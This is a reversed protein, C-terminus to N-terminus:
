QLLLINHCSFTMSLPQGAESSRLYRVKYHLQISACSSMLSTSSERIQLLTFINYRRSGLIGSSSEKIGTVPFPAADSTNPARDELAQQEVWDTVKSSPQNTPESDIVSPAMAAADEVLDFSQVSSHLESAADAFDTESNHAHVAEVDSWSESEMSGVITWGMSSASGAISGAMISIHPPPLSPTPTPTSPHFPPFSFPPSVSAWLM